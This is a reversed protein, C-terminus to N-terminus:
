ANKLDQAMVIKVILGLVQIMYTLRLLVEEMAYLVNLPEMAM